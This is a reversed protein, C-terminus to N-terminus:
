RHESEPHCGGGVSGEKWDEVCFKSAISRLTILCAELDDGGQETDESRFMAGHHAVVIGIREEPAMEFGGVVGGRDVVDM